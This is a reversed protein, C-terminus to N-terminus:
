DCENEKRDECLPCIFEYNNKYDLPATTYEVNCVSCKQKSIEQKLFDFQNNM